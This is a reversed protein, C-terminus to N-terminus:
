PILAMLTMDIDAESLPPTYVSTGMQATKDNSHMQIDKKESLIVKDWKGYIVEDVDELAIQLDTEQISPSSIGVTSMKDSETSSYASASTAPM